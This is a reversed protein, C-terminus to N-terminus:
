SRDGSPPRPECRRPPRGHNPFDASLFRPLARPEHRQSSAAVAISPGAIVASPRESCLENSSSSKPPRAVVSSAHPASVRPGHQASSTACAARRESVSSPQDGRSAQHPSTHTESKPLHHNPSRTPRPTGSLRLWRPSQFVPLRPETSRTRSPCMCQNTHSFQFLISKVRISPDRFRNHNAISSSPSPCPCM